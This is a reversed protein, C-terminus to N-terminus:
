EGRQESLGRTSIEVKNNSFKHGIYDFDGLIMIDDGDGDNVFCM